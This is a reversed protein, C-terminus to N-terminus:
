FEMKKLKAIQKELSVIKRDRMENARAIASEKSLYWDISTLCFSGGGSRGLLCDDDDIRVDSTSFELIGRTLVWKTVYVKTVPKDM